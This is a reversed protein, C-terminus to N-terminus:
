DVEVTVPQADGPNAQIVYTGPELEGLDVITAKLMAIEICMNDGPGHGELVSLTITNGDRVMRVSDLIYCPEVGSYWSLRVTVHRADVNVLLSNVFSPSPDLQGAVPVVITAGDDGPIPNPPPVDPGGPNVVGGGTGTNGGTGGGGGGGSGGGQDGPVATPGPEKSSGDTPASSAAGGCGALIVILLLGGVAARLNNM